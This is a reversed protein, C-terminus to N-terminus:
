FSVCAARYVTLVSQHRFREKWAEEVPRLRARASAADGGPLVIQLLKSRERLLRGDPARWQGQADLATLGDPFAPTVVEALFANWQAEGIEGGGALSRGFYAEAVMAAGTGAPCAPPTACGALLALAALAGLREPRM